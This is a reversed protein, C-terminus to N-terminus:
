SEGRGKTDIGQRIPEEVRDVTNKNETLSKIVTM